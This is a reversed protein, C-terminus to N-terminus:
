GLVEELLRRTIFRLPRGRFVSSAFKGECVYRRMTQKAFKTIEAAEDLSLIPGYKETYLEAIQQLEETTLRPGGRHYDSPPVDSNTPAPGGARLAAQATFYAEDSHEPMSDRLHSPPQKRAAGRRLTATETQPDDHCEAFVVPPKKGEKTKIAARATEVAVPKKKKLMPDGFDAATCNRPHDRHRSRHAPTKQVTVRSVCFKEEPPQRYSKVQLSQEDQSSIPPTIETAPNPNQFSKQFHDRTKSRALGGQDDARILERATEV